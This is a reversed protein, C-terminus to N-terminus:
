KLNQTMVGAAEDLAKQPDAKSLIVEQVKKDLTNQSEEWGKCNPPGGADNLQATLAAKRDDPIQLKSVMDVRPPLWLASLEAAKNSTMTAAEDSYLYNIFAAATDQNKSFNMIGIMRGGIFATKKGSPGAPIPAAAWKGKVGPHGSELGTIDWNGQMLIPYDGKEFGGEFDVTSDTPAKYKSYLESYFQLSKVAEPSNVNVKTCKADYLSGGAGYLFGYWGLWSTNGWSEAYGKSGTAQLKTIATTLEDWTTPLKEIGVAKLLDTRYYMMMVTLDSPVGYIKGDLTAVANYIGPQALKKINSVVDPYKAALDVMAGKTGFEIGWSLGGTIMDPGQGSTAATLDKAHADDWSVPQITVKVGPNAKGFADAASQFVKADDESGVAWVTLNGPAVKPGAAAAATTAASAATTASIAATTAVAAATTAASAATTAPAPATTNDGCASLVLVILMTLVTLMSFKSWRRPGFGTHRTM